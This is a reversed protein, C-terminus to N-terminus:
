TNGTGQYSERMSDCHEAAAQHVKAVGAYHQAMSRYFTHSADDDKCHKAMEAHADHMAQHHEALRTHHAASRKFHHAMGKTAGKALTFDDGVRWRNPVSEWAPRTPEPELGTDTMARQLAAHGDTSKWLDPPPLEQTVQTEDPELGTRSMDFMGAMGAMKKGKRLINYREGGLV